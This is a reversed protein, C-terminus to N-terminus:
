AALPEPDPDPSQATEVQAILSADPQSGAQECLAIYEKRRLELQRENCARSGRELLMLCTRLRAAATEVQKTIPVLPGRRDPPTGRRMSPRHAM